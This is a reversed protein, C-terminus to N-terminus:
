ILIHHLYQCSSCFSKPIPTFVLNDLDVEQGEEVKIATNDTFIFVKYNENMLRKYSKVTKGTLHEIFDTPSDYKIEKNITIAMIM